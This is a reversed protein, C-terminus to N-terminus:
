EVLIDWLYKQEREDHKYTLTNRDRLRVKRVRLQVLPASLTIDDVACLTVLPVREEAACIDNLGAVICSFHDFGHHHSGTHALIYKTIEQTNHYLKICNQTPSVAIRYWRWTPLRHTEAQVKWRMRPKNEPKLVALPWSMREIRYGLGM